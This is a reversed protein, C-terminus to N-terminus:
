RIWDLPVVQPIRSACTHRRNHLGDPFARRIWLESVMIVARASPAPAIAAVPGGHDLLMKTQRDITSAPSFLDCQARDSALVLIRAPKVQLRQKVRPKPRALRLILGYPEQEVGRM